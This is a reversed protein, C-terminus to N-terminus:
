IVQSSLMSLALQTGQPTSSAWPWSSYVSFPTAKQRCSLFGPIHDGFYIASSTICWQMMPCRSSLNCALCPGLSLPLHVSIVLYPSTSSSLVPKSSQPTPPLQSPVNWPPPLFILPHSQSSSPFLSPPPPLLPNTNQSSLFGPAPTSIHMQFCSAPLLSCCPCGQDWGAVKSGLLISTTQLWITIASIRLQSM